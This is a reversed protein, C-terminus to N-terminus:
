NVDVSVVAFKIQLFVSLIKRYTKPTKGQCIINKESNKEQASQLPSYYEYKKGRCYFEISTFDKPTCISEFQFSCM